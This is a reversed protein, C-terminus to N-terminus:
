NTPNKFEHKPNYFGFCVKGGDGAKSSDWLRELNPNNYFVIEFMTDPEKTFDQEM